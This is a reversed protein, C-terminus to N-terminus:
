CRPVAGPVKIMPMTEIANYRVRPVPMTLARDVGTLGVRGSPRVRGHSVLEQKEKRACPLLTEARQLEEPDAGEHEADGSVDPGTGVEAPMALSMQVLWVTAESWAQVPAMGVLSLVGCGLDGMSQWGRGHETMLVCGEGVLATLITGIINRAADGTTGEICMERTVCRYRPLNVPTESFIVVGLKLRLM